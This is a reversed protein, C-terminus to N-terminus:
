PHGSQSASPIEPGPVREDHPPYPIKIGNARFRRLIETQLDNRATLGEAVNALICRLEFDLGIEGFAMLLGVAAADQLM